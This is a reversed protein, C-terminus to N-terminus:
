TTERNSPRTGQGGPVSGGHRSSDMLVNRIKRVWQPKSIPERGTPRELEPQASDPVTGPAPPDRILVVRLSPQASALTEVAREAGRLKPNVVLVDIRLALKKTLSLAQRFHLAPVAQYGSETLVEGLWLIFAVDDDVILAVPSGTEAKV